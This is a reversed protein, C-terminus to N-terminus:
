LHGRGGLGHQGQERGKPDHTLEHICYLFHYLSESVCGCLMGLEAHRRVGQSPEGLRRVWVGGRGLELQEPMGFLQGAAIYGLTKKVKFFSHGEERCSIGLCRQLCLKVVVEELFGM